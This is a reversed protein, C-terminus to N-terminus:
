GASQTPRPLLKPRPAPDLGRHPEGACFWARPWCAKVPDSQLRGTRPLPSRTRSLSEATLPLERAGPSCLAPLHEATVSSSFNGCRSLWWEKGIDSILPCSAVWISGAQFYGASDAEVARREEAWAALTMRRMGSVQPRSEDFVLREQASLFWQGQWGWRGLADRPGPLDPTGARGARAHALPHTDPSHHSCCLSPATTFNTSSHELSRPYPHWSPSINKPM